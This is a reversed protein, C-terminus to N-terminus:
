GCSSRREVSDTYQWRIVGDRASENLVPSGEALELTRILGDKGIIARFAVTGTIGRSQTNRSRRNSSNQKSFRAVSGCGQRIPPNRHHTGDCKSWSTWMARALLQECFAVYGAPLQGAKALSPGASSIVALACVPHPSRGDQHSRIPGIPRFPHRSGSRRCHVPPPSRTLRRLGSPRWATCTERSCQLRTRKM